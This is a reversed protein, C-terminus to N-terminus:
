ETEQYFDESVYFAYTGDYELICINDDDPYKAFHYITAGILEEKDCSDVTGMMEGLDEETIEYTNEPTLGIADEPVLNFSKREEFSIPYYISDNVMIGYAVDESPYECAEDIAGESPTDTNPAEDGADEAPTDTAPAEEIAADEEMAEEECADETVVASETSAATDYAAEETSGMRITSLGWVGIILLMFCAAISGMRVWNIHRVKIQKGPAAEEILRDDIDDIADLLKEERM